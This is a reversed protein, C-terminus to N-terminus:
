FWKGLFSKCRVDVAFKRIPWNQCIKPRSKYVGCKAKGDKIELFICYGNKRKLWVKDEIFSKKGAKELRKIDEKSLLVRLRCCQGCRLCKFKRRKLIFPRLIFAYVVLFTLIFMIITDIQM